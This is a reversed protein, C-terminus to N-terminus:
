EHALQLLEPLAEDGLRLVALVQEESLGRGEDLVQRRAVGIIGLDEETTTM